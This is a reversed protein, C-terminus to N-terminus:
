STTSCINTIQQFNVSLKNVNFTTAAGSWADVWCVLLNLLKNWCKLCAHRSIVVKECKKKNARDQGFYEPDSKGAFDIKAGNRFKESRLINTM